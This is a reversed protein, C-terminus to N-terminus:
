RFFCQTGAYLMNARGGEGDFFGGIGGARFEAGLTSDEVLTVTRDQEIEARTSGIGVGDITTLPSPADLSWGVFRDAQFNLTLGDISSFEMPGAGCEDSSSRTGGRGFARGIANEVVRRGSGFPILRTAGTPIVMRLGESDLAPIPRADSVVTAGEAPEAQPIAPEAATEQIPSEPPAVEDSAPEGCGALLLVAFALTLRM